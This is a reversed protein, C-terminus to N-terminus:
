KVLIILLAASSYFLLSQTHYASSQELRAIGMALRLAVVTDVDFCNIYRESGPDALTSVIAVHGRFQM